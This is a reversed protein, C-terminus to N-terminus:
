RRPEAPAPLIRAFAEDTGNLSALREGARVRGYRQAQARQLERARPACERLVAETVFAIGNEDAVALMGPAVAIGGVEVTGCFEGGQYRRKCTLGTLGTAWVPLTLGRLEQLDTVPGDILVGACGARDAALALGGGFCAERGGGPRQVVLFDGPRLRSVAYHLASNDDGECRCTVAVGFSPERRGALHRFEPGTFGDALLHGLAAPDLGDALARLDPSLAPPPPAFRFGPQCSPKGAATQAPGPTDLGPLFREPM